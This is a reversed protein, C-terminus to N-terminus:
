GETKHSARFDDVPDTLKRKSLRFSGTREIRVGTVPDEKELNRCM